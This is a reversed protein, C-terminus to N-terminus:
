AYVNPTSSQDECHRGHHQRRLWCGFLFRGCCRHVNKRLHNRRLSNEGSRLDSQFCSRPNLSTWHSPILPFRHCFRRFIEAGIIVYHAGAMPARLVPKWRISDSLISQYRLLVRLTEFTAWIFSHHMQGRRAGQALVSLTVLHNHWLFLMIWQFYLLYHHPLHCILWLENKCDAQRGCGGSYAPPIQQSFVQGTKEASASTPVCESSLHRVKSELM